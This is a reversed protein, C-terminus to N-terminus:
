AHRARSVAVALLRSGEDSITEALCFKSVAAGPADALDLIVVDAESGQYAHVTSAPVNGLFNEHRAAQAVFPTVAIISTRGPIFGAMRVRRIVDRVVEM